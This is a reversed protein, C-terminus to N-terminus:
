STVTESVDVPVDAKIQDLGLVKDLNRPKRVGKDKRVKRPISAQLGEKLSHLAVQTGDELYLYDAAYHRGWARRHYEVLVGTVAKGEFRSTISPATGPAFEINDFAITTGHKICALLGDDGFFAAHGRYEGRSLTESVKAKRTNFRGYLLLMCM